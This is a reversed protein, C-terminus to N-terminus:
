TSGNDIPNTTYSKLTEKLARKRASVAVEKHTSSTRKNVKSYMAIKLKAHIHITDVWKTITVVNTSYGQRFTM